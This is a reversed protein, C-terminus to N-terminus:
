VESGIKVLMDCLKRSQQSVLTTSAPAGPLEHLRKDAWMSKPNGSRGKDDGFYLV